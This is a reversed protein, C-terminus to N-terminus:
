RMQPMRRFYVRCIHKIIIIIISFVAKDGIRNVAGVRIFSKQRDTDTTHVPHLVYWKRYDYSFPMTIEKGEM